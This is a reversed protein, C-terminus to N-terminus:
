GRTTMKHNDKAVTRRDRLRTARLVLELGFRVEPDTLRDGLSAKLQNMRYRVTQPHVHLQDGIEAASSWNELWVRLTDTLAKRKTGAMGDLGTLRRQALEDILAPDSLLWLTLLHEDCLVLPGDEIVGEAALALARVAWRASDPAEALPVTLGVALREGPFAATLMARRREDVPGPILLMPPTDVLDTLVDDDLALRASRVNAPMAVPTVEAPVSWDARDALDELARGNLVHRLLRRRVRALEESSQARASSYGQVSLGVLEDLYELQMAALEAVVRSPLRHLVCFRTTRHRAIRFALRYLTQLDNLNRSRHAEIQGLMRFVEGLRDAPTDPDAIRDAFTTVARAVAPRAAPTAAGRDPAAEDIAACIEDVLDNLEPRMLDAIERPIRDTPHPQM